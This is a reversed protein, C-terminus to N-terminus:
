APKRAARTRKTGSLHVAPTSSSSKGQKTEARSQLRIPATSSTKACEEDEISQHGNKKKVPKVSTASVKDPYFSKVPAFTKRHIECPGHAFIAETHSATGYGKHGAFGYQPYKSDFERMLRDRTVKAIISAAAISYVKTDGKIVPEAGTLLLSPTAKAISGAGGLERAGHDARPRKGSPSAEVGLRAMIADPVRPGDVLVHYQHTATESALLKLQLDDVARSMALMTAQLININDITDHDIISVGFVFQKSRLLEEYMRERDEEQVQKSDNIGLVPATLVGRVPLVLAAAAVVPGALPGRGAEDVGIVLACPAKTSIRTEWTLPLTIAASEAPKKAAAVKSMTRYLLASCTSRAALM